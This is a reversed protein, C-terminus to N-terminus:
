KDSENILSIIYSNCYKGNLLCNDRLKGEVIFNFKEKFFSLKKSDFDYLEMWIKHLNLDNFGYNILLETADEAYGKEDIYENNEGIYFSFEASRIIWNINLLGGAGIPKEKELNEIIFMYNTSNDICINEFWAKQQDINLEKVERFNRRLEENNRWNRLLELDRREVARLGTLKGYIM